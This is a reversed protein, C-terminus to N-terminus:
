LKLNSIGQVARIACSFGFANEEVICYRKERVAEFVICLNRLCSCPINLPEETWGAFEDVCLDFDFDPLESPNNNIEDEFGCIQFDELGFPEDDLEFSQGFDDFMMWDLDFGLNTNDSVVNDPPITPAPLELPPPPENLFSLDPIQLEAFETEFDNGEMAAEAEAEEEGEKKGDNNTVEPSKSTSTDLELVSSPSTQSFVSESDDSTTTTKSSQAAKAMSEFEERKSEYAQSAEEATNYTGLWIRVGKFPDRIEAAWKGWKRQRVGRYRSSSSSSSRSSPPALVRKKSIPNQPKQVNNSEQFSTENAAETSSSDLPLTLEHVIRKMKRPRRSFKKATEEDESSSSDTAEPDDCIIRLKRTPLEHFHHHNLKPHKMKM